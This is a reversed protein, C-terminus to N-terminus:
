RPWIGHGFELVEVEVLGFVGDQALTGNAV